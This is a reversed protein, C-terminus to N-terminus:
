DVRAARFSRPTDGRRLAAAVERLDLREAMNTQAMRDLFDVVAQREGQALLDPAVQWRSVIDDSYVLEESAPAQSARRLYDVAKTKEGDRLALTSLTMNATYIAMGYSPHSRFKPALKLTDEAYRRAHDRALELRGRLNSREV